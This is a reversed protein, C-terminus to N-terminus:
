MQSWASLENYFVWLLLEFEAVDVDELIMATGETMGERQKGPKAPALFRMQFHESEREFFYRHVRFHCDEV